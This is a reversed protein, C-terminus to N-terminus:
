ITPLTEALFQDGARINYQHAAAQSVVFRADNCGEQNHCEDAAFWVYNPTTAPSALDTAMRTLPLVHARAAPITPWSM